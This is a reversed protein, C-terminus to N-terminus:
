DDFGTADILEPVIRVKVRPEDPNHWPYVDKDIYKKALKDIQADAGDHTLEARGTISIWRHSNQPDVVTLAVRPDNRLHKPKARGEATNFLATEDDVDVWVVTNHPSGDERLTTATGVYPQALFERQQETLKAM